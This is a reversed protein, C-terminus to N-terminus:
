SFPSQLLQLFQMLVCCMALLCDLSSTNSESTVRVSTSNIVQHGDVVGPITMNSVCHYLGAQSTRVTHITLSTNFSTTTTSSDGSITYGSGSSITSNSSDLWHVNLTASFITDARAIKCELTYDDGATPVTEDM